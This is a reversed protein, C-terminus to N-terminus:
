KRVEHVHATAKVLMESPLRDVYEGALSRPVAGRDALRDLCMACLDHSGFIADAAMALAGFQRDSIVEPDSIDRIYVADGDLLQSAARRKFFRHAQSSPLTLSKTFMFKHLVFGQRRLESDLEGFMAEGEYMRHFRIEPVILIAKSLKRTAGRLIDIEAGQVDMKLIDLDPVNPLDDLASLQMPIETLPRSVWKKKGLFEASARHFKLVSSLSAIHHLNFVAPGPKGLALPFYTTHESKEAQLVAFAAPDPEFGILNAAGIELLTQYPPVGTARAGIDAVELPRLPALAEHLFKTRTQTV